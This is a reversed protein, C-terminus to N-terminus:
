KGENPQAASEPDLVTQCTARTQVEDQTEDAPPLVADGTAQLMVNGAHKAAASALSIEDATWIRTRGLQHLSVIAVVRGEDVIPTVIQARMGGYTELMQQFAPDDFAARCDNQVVQNGKMLELVVPQTPLNVTREDRLPGVGEALAEEVVPFAYEGPVDRRLTVRSAGTARLLGDLIEPITSM